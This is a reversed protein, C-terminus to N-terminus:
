RQAGPKLSALWVSAIPAPRMSKSPNGPMHQRLQSTSTSSGSAWNGWSRGPKSLMRATSWTVGSASNGASIILTKRKWAAASEALPVIGSQIGLRLSHRKTGAADAQRASPLGIARSPPPARPARRHGFSGFRRVTRAAVCFEAGPSFPSVGAVDAVPNPGGRGQWMRSLVPSM